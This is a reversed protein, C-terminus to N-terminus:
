FSHCVLKLASFGIPTKKVFLSMAALAPFQGIGNCGGWLPKRCLTVILGLQTHSLLVDNKKWHCSKMCM